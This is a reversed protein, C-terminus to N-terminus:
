NKNKRKEEYMLADAQAILEDLTSPKEPDFLATGVSLKLQYKKEPRNYTELITHLRKMLVEKTEDTTDIALIAFEDGGMRGIIDSERFAEKLIAAVESLAKDGEKHGLTDNIQKMKNLDAFFLLMDKKARDAIKLQQQCLVIFGRRNYLGTLEDTISLVQLAEELRKRETIDRHYALTAPERNFMVGTASVEIYVPSGDKRRGKFEYKSPVQEGTQRKRNREIVMELDDRHVTFSLSKGLLEEPKDYGHIELFKSNVYIHLGDRVLAVGDNSSEIAIRYREESETLREEAQKRETIDQNAGYYKIVLGDADKIVRIRALIHRVASDRRIIRHEVDHLFEREKNLRRKEAVQAFLWMDDPHVFRKGYEERMMRYGGEREATTGCFAYFPDNFIFDGTTLDAEWYVIHALEMADSLQLRSAILAEETQRYSAINDNMSSAKGATRFDNSKKVM